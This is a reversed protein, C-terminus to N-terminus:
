ALQVWDDESLERDHTLWSMGQSCAGDFRRLVIIHDSQPQIELEVNEGDMPPHIVALGQLQPTFTERLVYDTPNNTYVFGYWCKCANIESVRWVGEYDPRNELYHSRKEEPVLEPNLAVSKLADVLLSFGQEQDILTVDTRYPSLIDLLVLDFDPNLAHSVLPCEM